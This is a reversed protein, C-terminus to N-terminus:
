GHSVCLSHLRVFVRHEHCRLVNGVAENYEPYLSVINNRLCSALHHRMQSPNLQMKSPDKGHLLHTVFAIAFVGCDITNTQQPVPKAHVTLHDSDEQLM